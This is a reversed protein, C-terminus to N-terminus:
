DDNTDPQHTIRLNGGRGYVWEMVTWDRIRKRQREASRADRGRWKRKRGENMVVLAITVAGVGGIALYLMRAGGSEFRGCHLM